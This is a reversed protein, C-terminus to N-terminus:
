NRARFGALSNRSSTSSVPKGMVEVRIPSPANGPRAIRLPQAHQAHVAGVFGVMGHMIAVQHDAQARAEVVADGAPDIGERRARLLDMEIDVGRLDVLITRTSRGMTASAACPAARSPGSRSSASAALGIRRRQLLPPLLDVVPAGLLREGILFEFVSMLGCYAM